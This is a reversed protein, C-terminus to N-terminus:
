LADALQKALPIVQKTGCPCGTYMLRIIKNGKRVMIASGSTVFAQDGIQLDEGTKGGMRKLVKANLNMEATAAPSESVSVSLVAVNGSGDGDANHGDQPFSSFITKAFQSAMQQTKADAGKDGMLSTAHKVAMDAANGKALYSCGDGEAYAKVIAVGIAAGVDEKSLYRCPDGATQSNSSTSGSSTTGNPDATTGNPNATGTIEAKIEHYKQSVKHAAYWAAAIGGAFIILVASIAVKAGAGMGRKPATAAPSPATQSASPQTATESPGTQAGCRACFRTGAEM